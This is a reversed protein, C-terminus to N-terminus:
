CSPSNQRPGSELQSGTADRNVPVRSTSTGSEDGFVWPISHLLVLLIAVLIKVLCNM